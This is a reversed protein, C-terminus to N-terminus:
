GGSERRRWIFRRRADWGGAGVVLARSRMLRRQGEVGIDDLLIHRSYRELQADNM